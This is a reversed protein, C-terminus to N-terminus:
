SVTAKSEGNEITNQNVKDALASAFAPNSVLCYVHTVPGSSDIVFLRTPTRVMFSPLIFDGGGISSEPHIIHDFSGVLM